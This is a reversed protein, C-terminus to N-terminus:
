RPQRMFLNHSPAHPHLQGNGDWDAWGNFPVPIADDLHRLHNEYAALHGALRARVDADNADGFVASPVFPRLVTMGVYSLTMQMPWLLLDLDGNRGNPAYTTEPGGLTVSLMARKGKLHGRDYRMRSSYTKGYVLVRDIWGKLIAPPQFWWMPYQMIVLDARDLKALEAQVDEPFRGTESAFRQEDQVDFRAADHRVAYHRPHECPDFDQAYLDSLEVANGAAALTAIARDVLQGNFSAREPHALVILVHM